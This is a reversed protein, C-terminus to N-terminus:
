AALRLLDLIIPLPKKTKFAALGNTQDTLLKPLRPCSYKMGPFSDALSQCIEEGNLKARAYEATGAEPEEM